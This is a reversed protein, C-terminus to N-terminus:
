QSGVMLRIMVTIGILWPGVFVVGCLLAITVVLALDRLSQLTISRDLDDGNVSQGGRDQERPDM